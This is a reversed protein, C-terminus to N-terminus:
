PPSLRKAGVLIFVPTGAVGRSPEAIVRVRPTNLAAVLESIFQRKEPPGAVHVDMFMPLNQMFNDGVGSANVKLGCGSSGLIQALYTGFVAGEVDYAMSRMVVATGAFQKCAKNISDIEAPTYSRPQIQVELRTAELKADAAGKQAEAIQANATAVKAVANRSSAEASAVKAEAEETRATDSAIQSQFSDAERHAEAADREDQAAREGARKAQLNLSAITGNFYENTGILAALSIALGVVLIWSSVGELADRKEGAGKLVLNRETLVEGVVGIFVLIEGLYELPEWLGHM